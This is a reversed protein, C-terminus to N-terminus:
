FATDVYLSVTTDAQEVVFSVQRLLYTWNCEPKCESIKYIRSQFPWWQDGQAVNWSWIAFGFWPEICDWAGVPGAQYLRLIKREVQKAYQPSFSVDFAM